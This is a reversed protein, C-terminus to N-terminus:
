EIAVTVFLTLGEWRLRAPRELALSGQAFSLRLKPQGITGGEESLGEVRPLESLLVIVAERFDLLVPAGELEVVGQHGSIRVSSSAPFVKAGSDLPYGSGRTQVSRPRLGEIVLRPRDTSKFDDASPVPETSALSMAQRARRQEYGHRILAAAAISQARASDLPASRLLLDQFTYGSQVLHQWDNLGIRGLVHALSAGTAYLNNRHVTPLSAPQVPAGERTLQMHLLLPLRDLTGDTLILAAAYGIWHASAEKREIHAEALQQTKPLQQMRMQRVASYEQLLHNIQDPNHELLTAALIAREVEALALFSPDLIHAAGIAPEELADWTGHITPRFANSQFAHFAEHFLFASVALSDGEAGLADRPMVGPVNGSPTRFNLVFSHSLEPHAGRHLYAHLQEVSGHRQFGSPAAGSSLLLAADSSYIIFGQDQPWFGPWVQSLEPAAQVVSRAFHM